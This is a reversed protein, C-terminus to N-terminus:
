AHMCADAPRKPVTAHKSKAGRITNLHDLTLFRSQKEVSMMSCASPQIPMQLNPCWLKARSFNPYEHAHPSAAVTWMGSRQAADLGPGDADIAVCRHLDIALTRLVLRHPGNDPPAKFNANTVTVSFMSHLATGFAHELLATASRTPMATVVALKCGRALANDILQACGGHLMPGRTAVFEHFFRNKEAVLRAAEHSDSTRFSQRTMELIAHTVGHQRVAARLQQVSWRLDLGCSKFAANCSWLHAEETDFMVGDLGLTLLEIGM